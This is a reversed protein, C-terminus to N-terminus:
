EDGHDLGFRERIARYVIHARKCYDCGGATDLHVDLEPQQDPRLRLSCRLYEFATEACERAAARAIRHYCERLPIYKSGGYIKAVVEDVIREVAYPDTM